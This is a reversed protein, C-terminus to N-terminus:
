RARRAEEEDAKELTREGADHAEMSTIFLRMEVIILELIRHATRGEHVHASQRKHRDEYNSM